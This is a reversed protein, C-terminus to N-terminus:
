TDNILFIDGSELITYLLSVVKLTPCLYTVLRSCLESSVNRSQRPSLSLTLGEVQLFLRLCGVHDENAFLCLSVDGLVEPYGM